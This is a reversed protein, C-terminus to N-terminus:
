FNYKLGVQAQWRSNIPDTTYYHGTSSPPIFNYTPTYNPAGASTYPAGPAKGNADTAFKLLNVTYNNVNTVFSIHGWDNNLLNLVNFVDVSLQLSQAKNKGKFRFEHMLKMDLEHNWPTHAGNRETYQGKRSSLYSDNNVFNNFDTQQQSSSYTVAGTADKIDAFNIKESSAPIYALNANSSNGFPNPSSAYIYTFPSGSQGSYFFSLNTTNYLGWNFAFGTTAVIRHRLDFNSYSLDPNNPNIAPNVEYNSQFSNRIGNSLDKSKGYTYAVSWNLNLTNNSGMNINRSTKNLQATLNYRWGQKTNSLLYVNSFVSNAKGGVFVPTETPGATFYATSDKINIQQFQVDYLTKTYMADLTLTYGTGFRIDTAINSRWITPLKFNNDILDVEHTTTASAGGHAALTDSLNSPNFALPIYTGSAPKYDINGINTGTLTSAYGIWAFPMRGVFIGTGGRIILSRNGNVDFNFGIRPSLTAKGLWKNTFENWPTHSYAPDNSTYNHTTDINQDLPIKKSLFPYDIRLGPSIKLKRTASIDDQVYASMLNVNYHEGPVSGYLDDRNNKAPDYTYAGRIRSPQSSLFHTLDAYEWRGNWSNIFGYDLSYFENHTGFTFKNIGKSWTVNDTFEFTKQKQNYVSAERWTGLWIKGGGIDM